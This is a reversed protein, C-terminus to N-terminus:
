FKMPLHFRNGTSSPYWNFYAFQVKYVKDLLCNLNSIKWSAIDEVLFGFNSRRKEKCSAEHFIYFKFPKGSLNYFTLNGYKIFLSSAIHLLIEM